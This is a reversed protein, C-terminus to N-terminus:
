KWDAQDVRADQQGPSSGTVETLTIWPDRQHAAHQSAASLLPPPPDTQRGCGAPLLVPVGPGIDETPEMDLDGDIDNHFQSSSSSCPCADCGGAGSGLSQQQEEQQQGLQQKSDGRSPAASTTAVPASSGGKTAVFAGVLWPHTLLRGVSWRYEPPSLAAALFHCLASGASANLRVLLCQLRASLKGDNGAGVVAAFDRDAMTPLSHLRRRTLLQFVMLGVGYVDALYPNFPEGAFVARGGGLSLLLASALGCLTQAQLAICHFALFL